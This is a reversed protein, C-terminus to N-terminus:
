TTERATLRSRVIPPAHLVVFQRAAIKVVGGAGPHQLPAIDDASRGAAPRPTGPHLEVHLDIGRAARDRDARHAKEGEAARVDDGDASPQGLLGGAPFEDNSQRSLRDESRSRKPTGTSFSPRSNVTSSAHIEAALAAAIM